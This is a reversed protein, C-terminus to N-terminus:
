RAADAKAVIEALRDSLEPRVGTGELARMCECLPSDTSCLTPEEIIRRLEFFNSNTKTQNKTNSTKHEGPTPVLLASGARPRFVACRWLWEPPCSRPGGNKIPSPWTPVGWRAIPLM